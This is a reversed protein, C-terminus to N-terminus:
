CNTTRQSTDIFVSVRIGKRGRGEEVKRKSGTGEEREEGELSTTVVSCNLASFCSFLPFFHQTIDRVKLDWQVKFDWEEKNGEPALLHQFAVGARSDQSELHAESVKCLLPQLCLSQQSILM